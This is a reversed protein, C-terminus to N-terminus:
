NTSPVNAGDGVLHFHSIDILNGRAHVGKMNKHIVM